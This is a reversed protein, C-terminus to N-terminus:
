PIFYIFFSVLTFTAMMFAVSITLPVLKPHLEHDSHAEKDGSQYDEDDYYAFLDEDVDLEEEIEPLEAEDEGAM